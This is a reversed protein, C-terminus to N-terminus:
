EISVNVDFGNAKLLAHQKAQALDHAVMEACMEQATIEPVWGLKQKAKRPDGLLTEVETPRFYRPDIRVIAKENWYAVENVGEGEWRLEMSLAEATWNIFQRVSYQVGTAIVFDEPQDQQLMM